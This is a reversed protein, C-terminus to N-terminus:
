TRLSNSSVSGSGICSLCNGIVPCLQAFHESKKTALLDTVCTCKYKGFEFVSAFIMEDGCMLNTKLEHFHDAM